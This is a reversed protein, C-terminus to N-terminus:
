SFWNLVQTSTNAVIYGNCYKSYDNHIGDESLHSPNPTCWDYSAARLWDLILPPLILPSFNLHASKRYTKALISKGKTANGLFQCDVWFPADVKRAGSKDSHSKQRNLNSFAWVHANSKLRYKDRPAHSTRQDPKWHHTPMGFDVRGIQVTELASELFSTMGFLLM